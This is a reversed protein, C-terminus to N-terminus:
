SRREWVDAQSQVLDNARALEAAVRRMASAPGVEVHLDGRRDVVVTAVAAGNGMLTIRRVDDNM